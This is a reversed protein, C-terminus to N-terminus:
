EEFEKIIKEIINKVSVIKNIRHVNSGSFFLGNEMDGSVANILADLICYPTERPSCTKLCNICRKSPRRNIKIDELFKNKIARGPLGVPSEIIILDEKTSNVILDKFKPDADCENTAIFRTGIQLGTVGLKRFKKLDYGDYVSGAVFISIEVETNMKIKQVEEVIEMAIEELTQGNTIEDTKFGLHGGAGTGEVILFDPFRNYRKTWVKNILKFAKLSSVIPALLVDEDEVLEPLNLPIGAGSIIYDVKEKAAEKVLEEYDNIAVMINVGVLGEGESIERAKKLEKKF